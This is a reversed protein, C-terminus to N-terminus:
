LKFFAAATRLAMRHATQRYNWLPGYIDHAVDIDYVGPLGEDSVIAKRSQTRQQRARRDCAQYLQLSGRISHEGPAHGM